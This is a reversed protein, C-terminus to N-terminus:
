SWCPQVLLFREDAKGGDRVGFRTLLFLLLFGFEIPLVWGREVGVLLWLVVIM